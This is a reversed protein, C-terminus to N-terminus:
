LGIPNIPWTGKRSSFNFGEKFTEGKIETMAAEIGARHTAQLLSRSLCPDTLRALLATTGAPQDGRKKRFLSVVITALRTRRFAM